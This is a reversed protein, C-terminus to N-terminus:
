PPGGAGTLIGARIRRAKPPADPDEELQATILTAVQVTGRLTLPLGDRRVEISLPAGARARSRWADFFDFGAASIGDVRLLIDGVRVGALAAAGRETVMTVVQGATDPSLSVGLRPERLTDRVYRWGAKALWATWPYADRGDVYRANFEAFSVGGSARSVEDWWEAPTFGRGAKYARAYLARLVDDLSRANDSADRILIDLALGALSGKDYYIGNSGDRIRLWAELSADELAVPAVQAVHDMKEQTVALFARPTIAGGRVMAVDAYYDTIGESVWLWPTPQAADYRYPWLEAPRLRKVNYAHFVEHAYVSPVFPEDLYPTGVIGVNSNQHELASMGGFSAEAIQM